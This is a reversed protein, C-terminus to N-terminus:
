GMSTARTVAKRAEWSPSHILPLIRPISPAAQMYVHMWNQLHFPPVDLSSSISSHLSASVPRYRPIGTGCVLHLLRRSHFLFSTPLQFIPSFWVLGPMITFFPLKPPPLFSTFLACFFHVAKEPTTRSYPMSKPVLLDPYGPFRPKQLMRGQSTFISCKKKGRSNTFDKTKETVSAKENSLKHIKDIGAEDIEKGDYAGEMKQGSSARSWVERLLVMELSVDM